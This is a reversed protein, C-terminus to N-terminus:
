LSQRLASYTTNLEVLYYFGVAVGIYLVVLAFLNAFALVCSCQSKLRIWANAAPDRRRRELRERLM